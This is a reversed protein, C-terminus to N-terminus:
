KSKGTLLTKQEKQPKWGTRRMTGYVYAQKRKGTLGKNRAQRNLKDHLRKPM